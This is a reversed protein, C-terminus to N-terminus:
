PSILRFASPSANYYRKFQRSFNAQQSFGMYLFQM